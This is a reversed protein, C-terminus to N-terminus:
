FKVSAPNFFDKHELYVRICAKSGICHKFIEKAHKESGDWNECNLKSQLKGLINIFHTM